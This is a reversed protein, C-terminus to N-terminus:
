PRRKHAVAGIPDGPLRANGILHRAAEQHTIGLTEATRALGHHAVADLCVCVKLTIYVTPQNQPLDRKKRAAHAVASPFRPLAAAPEPATSPPYRRQQRSSGIPRRAAHRFIARVGQPMSCQHARCYATLNMVALPGLNLTVKFPFPGTRDRPREPWLGTNFRQCGKCQYQQDGKESKGKKWCPQGCYPCPVAPPRPLPPQFQRHCPLCLYKQRGRQYGYRVVDERKGCAPCLPYDAAGRPKVTRGPRDISPETM